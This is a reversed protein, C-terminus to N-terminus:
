ERQFVGKMLKKLPNVVFIVEPIRRHISGSFVQSSFFLTALLFLPIGLSHNTEITPASFDCCEHSMEIVDHEMEMGHSIMGSLGFLSTILFLQAIWKKM